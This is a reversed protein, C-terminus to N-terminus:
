ILSLRRGIQYFTRGFPLMEFEEKEFIQLKLILVFYGAVAAVISLVMSVLYSQMMWFLLQYVLFTGGGMVVSALFPLLFTKRIEQKYYLEKSVDRWNLISVVMPFTINGIVLTYVGLNTLWLLVALLPIHILLSIFSNWVSRSVRNIGQLIGSTTISLAYFVIASAGWFLLSASLGWYEPLKQFLTRMIPYALAMLGTMSPLAIVMNFKMSSAVQKRVVDYQKIQLSSVISPVVSASIASSISIPLMLLLKYQATYVGLLTSKVNDAVGKWDLINSFVADDVIASIQYVTQSLLIPTITVVLLKYIDRTEMWSGSRDRKQQKMLIPRHWVYLLVLFLLAAGAGMLTGMTGGAAGYASIEESLSHAEMFIYAAYISVAANVIQELIQSFATPIMTNKGEYFGRFVGLMGAIFTTPALIRLPKEAGPMKYFAALFGSGFYLFLAAVGGVIVALVLACRFVQNANRYQRSINKAAVLKSVAMPLSYSFLILILNYINFSVSYIGNGETGLINAMPIRYLIGIMRVLISAGALISGQVLFRESKRVTDM